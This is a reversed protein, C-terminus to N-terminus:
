KEGGDVFQKVCGRNNILDTCEQVPDQVVEGSDLIAPSTDGIGGRCPTGSHGGCVYCRLGSVPSSQQLLLCWTLIWSLRVISSLRFCSNKLIKYEVVDWCAKCAIDKENAQLARFFDIEKSLIKLSM